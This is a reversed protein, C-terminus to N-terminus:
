RSVVTFAKELREEEANLPLNLYTKIYAAIYDICPKSKSIRGNSMIRGEWHPNDRSWDVKKLEKLRNEWGEPYISLL